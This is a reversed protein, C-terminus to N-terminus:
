GGFLAWHIGNVLDLALQPRSGGLRLRELGGDIVVDLWTDPSGLAWTPPGDEVRAACSVVEGNEVEVTVGALNRGSRQEAAPSADTKVVLMATGNANPPLPALPISLMFAAEVEIATIPASDPLHRRECRGSACLPAISQRPWDTVVYPTGRGGAKVPEIQGTARMSALRRELSPYSVGPILRDLETLTFSKNALARMLTSGWAGALAKVAGKAADGDPAIPGGPALTLWRELVAAVEIVDAGMPTLETEVAFRSGGVKRKELAGIARLNNLSARLTTSAAWGLRDQLGALRLPGDAHARLVQPNIPNAFLALIRAGARVEGESPANADSMRWVESGDIERQRSEVGM